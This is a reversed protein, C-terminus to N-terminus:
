KMVNHWGECFLQLDRTKTLVQQQRYKITNNLSVLCASMRANKGCFWSQDRLYQSLPFGCVSSLRESPSLFPSM